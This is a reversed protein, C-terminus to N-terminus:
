EGYEANKYITNSYLGSTDTGPIVNPKAYLQEVAVDYTTQTYGPHNEAYASRFYGWFGAFLSPQQALGPYNEQRAYPWPATGESHDIVDQLPEDDPTIDPVPSGEWPGSGNVRIANPLRSTRILQDM